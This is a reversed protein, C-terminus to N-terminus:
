KVFFTADQQDLSTSISTIYLLNDRHRMYQGPFNYSELSIAGSHSLGTRRNWTADEKFQTSNDNFDMWIEGDRHRLFHGPFNVSELSIATANALGPVMKWQSDAVEIIETFINSIKGRGDQHRIYKDPLNFSDFQNIPLEYDVRVLKWRQTDLGNETWQIVKTGPPSGGGANDLFLGSHENMSTYYGSGTYGFKWRQTDLYNDTWMIVKTGPETAGNPDDLVLKNNMNMVRFFGNDRYETMWWQTDLGLDTWQIVETGPPSGGGANDLLLNNDKNILKYQAGSVITSDLNIQAVNARIENISGVKVSNVELLLSNSLPLLTGSWGSPKNDSGSITLPADIESWTAGNNSSTFMKNDNSVVDTMGRVYFRGYTSGDDVYAVEPTQSARYFGVGVVAGLGSPDGWNIGDTSTKFRVAFNPTAGLHEYFMFYTGNKARTVRPMGPRWNWDTNKGVIISYNGWTLGGDSSIEQSIAKTIDRRQLLTVRDKM